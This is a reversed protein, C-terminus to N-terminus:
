QSVTDYEQEHSGYVEVVLKHPLCVITQRERSIAGQRMCLGDPCTAQEMRATGDEILVVNITEGDQEVPIRQNKGLPYTGYVAGDITIRVMQGTHSFAFIGVTLVIGCLFLGTLFIVDKIGFTGFAHFKDSKKANGFRRTSM